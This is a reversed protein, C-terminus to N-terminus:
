NRLIFCMKLLEFELCFHSNELKDSGLQELYKIICLCWVQELGSLSNITVTKLLSLIVPHDWENTNQEYKQIAYYKVEVEEDM